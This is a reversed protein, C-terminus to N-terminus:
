LAEAKGSGQHTKKKESAEEPHRESKSYPSSNEDLVSEVQRRLVIFRPFWATLSLEEDTMISEREVIMDVKVKFSQARMTESCNAYSEGVVAIIFNMLVINGVFMVFLWIVWFLISYQSDEEELDNDGLSTRLTMVFYKAAGIGTTGDPSPPLSMILSVQISFMAIIVVYFFIFHQLDLFVRVVMQVLYSFRDFIRMFYNLKVCALGLLMCQVVKLGYDDPPKTFSIPIYSIYLLALMTDNINWFNMIYQKLGQYYLQRAKLWSHDAILLGGITRTSLALYISDTTLTVDLVLALIFVLAKIFHGMFYGRTYAEWKFSIVTQLLPVDLYGLDRGSVLSLLYM